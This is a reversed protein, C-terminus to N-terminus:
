GRERALCARLFHGFREVEISVDAWFVGELPLCARLFQAFGGDRQQQTHAPSPIESNKKQEKAGGSGGFAFGSEM